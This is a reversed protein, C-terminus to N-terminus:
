WGSWTCSKMGLGKSMAAQMYWVPRSGIVFCGTFTVFPRRTELKGFGAWLGVSRVGMAWQRPQFCFMERAACSQGEQQRQGANEQPLQQKRKEPYFALL